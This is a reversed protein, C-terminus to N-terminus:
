FRLVCSYNCSQLNLFVELFMVISIQSMIMCAEKWWQCLLFLWSEETGLKRSVCVLAVLNMWDVLHM